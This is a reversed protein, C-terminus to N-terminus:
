ESIRFGQPTSPPPNSVTYEVENSPLSELGAANTAVVAIYYTKGAITNSITATAGLGASVSANYARSFNTGPFTVIPPCNTGNSTIQGQWNAIKNTAVYYVRYGTVSSDTSPCWAVKITGAIATFCVMALMLLISLKRM